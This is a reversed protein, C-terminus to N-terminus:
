YLSISCAIGRRVHLDAIKFIADRRVNTAMGVECDCIMGSNGSDLLSSLCKLRFHKNLPRPDGRM